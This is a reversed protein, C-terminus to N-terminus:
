DAQPVARQAREVHVTIGGLGSRVDDRYRADRFRVLYGDATTQVEVFPFRAWRLFGRVEPVRLAALVAESREGHPVPEADWAVHPTRFWEFRGLHYHEGDDVVVRGAFPNAPAPAVMIDAPHVGAALAEAHTRDRALADAGIMASIYIAVVALATRPAREGATRGARRQRVTWVAIGAIGAVWLARAGLPIGPAAIVFATAAAALLGWGTRARWNGSYHIVLPGALVLWVWPDIIFLSDGYFWRDSFPALLRIGYSNLWDLAQHTLVGLGALALVPLARARPADPQRRRRRYRDHLLIIATVLLPLLLLALPGHTTGRRLALSTYPGILAAALDIDPINAALVLTATALPTARHLGARSLAAGALSHTVPDV